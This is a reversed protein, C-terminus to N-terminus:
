TFNIVPAANSNIAKTSIKGILNIKLISKLSM